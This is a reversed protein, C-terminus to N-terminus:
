GNVGKISKFVTKMRETETIFKEKNSIYEKPYKFNAFHENKYSTSIRSTAGAGIGVVNGIENMMAINYLSYKKDKCYGVSEHNGLAYKQRYLYYPEFGHSICTNCSFNIFEDINESYPKGYSSKKIDASKKLCLTHVTVNDIGTSLVDQVSKKFSELTETTLGAILDTNISEFGLSQALSIANFYDKSTHNRGIASLVADNTTQTNISVRSVNNNKLLSLKEKTVTEPRGIEYTFESLRSLDFSSNLKALLKDTDKESLIGPTGGGVYISKVNLSLECVMRSVVEIENYLTELYDPILRNQKEIGYSVFSCYNCRSPCFPISIYLSIDSASMKESALKNYEACRSLLNIKDESILYKEKLLQKFNEKGIFSQAVKVPRVGTLVGYHPVSLKLSKGISVVCKGVACTKAIRDSPHSLVEETFSSHIDDLEADAKIYGDKESISIKLSSSINDFNDRFVELCIHRAYLLISEDNSFITM